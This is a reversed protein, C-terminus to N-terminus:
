EGSVLRRWDVAPGIRLLPGLEFHRRRFMKWRQLTEIEDVIRTFIYESPEEALDCLQFARGLKVFHKNRMKRLMRKADVLWAEGWIVGELACIRLCGIVQNYEWPGGYTSRFHGESVTFTHPAEERTIGGSADQLWRLHKQVDKEMQKNFQKPSCRYIPIEFVCAEM